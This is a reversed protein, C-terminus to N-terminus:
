VGRNERSDPIELEDCTGDNLSEEAAQMARRVETRRDVEGLM